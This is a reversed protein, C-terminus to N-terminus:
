LTLVIKLEKLNFFAQIAAENALLYDQKESAYLANNINHNFKTELKNAENVEIKLLNKSLEKWENLLNQIYCHIEWKACIDNSCSTICDEFYSRREDVLPYNTQLMYENLQNEIKQLKSTVDYSNLFKVEYMKHVMEKRVNLLIYLSDLKKKAQVKYEKEKELNKIKQNERFDEEIKTRELQFSKYRKKKRQYRIFTLILGVIVLSILIIKLVNM